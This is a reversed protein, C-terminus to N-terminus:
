STQIQMLVTKKFLKRQRQSNLNHYFYLYEENKNM